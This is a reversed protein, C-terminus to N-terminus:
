QHGSIVAHMSKTQEFTDKQEPTAETQYLKKWEEFSMGYIVERAEDYDVDVGIETAASLFWKSLCNRFFGALNMLDINQVDNRLQLHSVLGRFAAAEIMTRTDKDM